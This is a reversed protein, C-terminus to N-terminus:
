TVRWGAPPDILDSECSLARHQDTSIITSLVTKLLSTSLITGLANFVTLVLDRLIHWHGLDPRFLLLSDSEQLLAHWAREASRPPGM